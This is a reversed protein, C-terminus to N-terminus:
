AIEYTGSFQITDAVGWSFPITQNMATHYAYTGDSRLVQIRVKTTSNLLLFGGYAATGTDNMACTGIPIDAPILSTFPLSIDFSTLGAFTTTSGITYKGWFHVTKGVQKYSGTIVANGNSGGGNLTVTPTWTTWATLIDPSVQNANTFILPRSIVMLRPAYGFSTNLVTGSATAHIVRFKITYTTNPQADYLFTQNVTVYVSSQTIFTPTQDVGNISLSGQVLGGAGVAVGASLIFMLKEPASGTTYTASCGPVDTYSATTTYNTAQRVFQSTLDTINLGASQNGIANAVSEIATQINLLNDQHM